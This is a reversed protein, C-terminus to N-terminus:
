HCRAATAAAEDIWRPLALQLARAHAERALGLARRRGDAEGVELLCRALQLQNELTRVTWGARENLQVGAEYHALAQPAHGGAQALMGLLQAVAGEALGSIGIALQDPHRALLPYLATAYDFARLTLAVRTLHGLTGLYDRDCPLQALAAPSVARLAARAVGHQGTSVAARLKMAWIVPPDSAAFEFRGLQGDSASSAPGIESFSTARDFACFSELGIMERLESRRQLKQLRAIGEAWRGSNLLALGELRQFHWLLEMHRLEQCRLSARGIARQSADFEGRQLSIIARWLGVTVPAVPMLRPHQQAMRELETATQESHERYDPGGQLYLKASLTAYRAVPLNSGDALALADRLLSESQQRRFCHPASWASCALASARLGRDHAPLHELASELVEGAGPHPEMGPHLNLKLAALLLMDGAGHDRALRAVERTASLGERHGRAYLAISYLLSMRLRVSPKDMLELAELAHRSYRVVDTNAFVSAAAAAAARCSAVTQRLDGDPLAAHGHYALESAAISEGSAIRGQLARVVRVHWLRRDRAALSEYLVARLLEHGFAFETLSGPAAVVLEADIADDLLPMIASADRELVSALLPLEFSRGIVAAACLVEHVEGPLRRVRQRILALAADPVALASPDPRERGALSRVLEAMFFPNGESKEFLARGFRGDPDDVLASAYSGVESESLRALTIRECNRHGLVEPLHTSRRRPASTPRLCAVLLIRARAVEDLLQCMLELSAADARHLDDIVILWPSQRAARVIGRLIHEFLHHREPGSWDFDVGAAAPQLEPVPEGAVDRLVRLWPWLPPTDGAERCYGWAVRVDTGTLERELAEVVRTKGIGPEGMLACASGRGARAEQMARRLQELTHERGVFPAPPSAPVISAGSRQRVADRLEVGCVFRYGRGYATTVFEREGRQHALLKRLRAISVTIANDAIARGEWVAQVLEEKPVLRGAHRVLYRLLRLVLADADVLEGARRLELNEPDLEFDAFAYVV